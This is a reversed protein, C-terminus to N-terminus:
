HCPVYLTYSIKIKWSFRWHQALNTVDCFKNHNSVAASVKDIVLLYLLKKIYPRSCGCGLSFLCTQPDMQYHLLLHDLFKLGSLKRQLNM